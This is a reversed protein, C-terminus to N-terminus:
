LRVGLYFHLLLAVPNNVLIVFSSLCSCPIRNRQLRSLLRFLSIDVSENSFEKVLLLDKGEKNYIEFNLVFLNQLLNSKHKAKKARVGKFMLSKRGLKETYVHSIISTEGYKINQLVIGRTKELM